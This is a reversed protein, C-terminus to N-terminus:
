RDGHRKQSRHNSRRHGKRVCKGHQKVFGRKCRAKKGLNGRTGGLSGIEAPPAAQSGPGHCEDSAACPPPPPIHFFGGGERADYVRMLSGNQDGPALKDRTFFFADKGNESASLFGSDFPGTGASILDVSGANWEYADLKGNTDRLSLPDRSNFFVRGDATLSNGNSALAANHFVGSNSPPCSACITADAQGDYRYIQVHGYSEYDTIKAGSPFATFRGDPSVQFDESHRVGAQHVAHLVAPNDIPKSPDPEYGIEAVENGSSVYLHHTAGNVAIGLSNKIEGPALVQRLERLPGFVNIRGGMDLFLENTESDTALAQVNGTMFEGTQNPGPPPAFSGDEFVSTFLLNTPNGQYECSFCNVAYVHGLSDAATQCPGAAEGETSIKTM